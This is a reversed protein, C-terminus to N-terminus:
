PARGGETAEDEARELASGDLQVPVTGKAGFAKLMLTQAELLEELTVGTAGLLAQFAAGESKQFLRGIAFGVALSGRDLRPATM